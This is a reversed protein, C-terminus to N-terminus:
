SRAPEPTGTQYHVPNFYRTQKRHDFTFSPWNNTNKCTVAALFPSVFEDGVVTKVTLKGSAEDFDAQM